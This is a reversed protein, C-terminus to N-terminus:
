DDQGPSASGTKDDIAPGEVELVVGVATRGQFYGVYRKAVAVAETEDVPFWRLDLSEDSARATAGAARM